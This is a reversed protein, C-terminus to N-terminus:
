PKKFQSTLIILTTSKGQFFVFSLCKSVTYGVCEAKTTCILENVGQRKFQNVIM